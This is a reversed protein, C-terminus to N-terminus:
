FQRAGRQRYARLYSGTGRLRRIEQHQYDEPYHIKTYIDPYTANSGWAGRLVDYAEKDHLSWFTESSSYQDAYFMPKFGLSYAMVEAELGLKRPDFPNKRFSPYSPYPGPGPRGYPGIELLMNERPTGHEDLSLNPQLIKRKELTPRVPNLWIPYIGKEQFYGLLQVANKLLGIYDQIFFQWANGIRDMLDYLEEAAFNNHLRRIWAEDKKGFKKAIYEGMWYAGPRFRESASIIDTVIEADRTKMAQHAFRHFWQDGPNKFTTVSEFSPDDIETGVIVVAENPSFVIAEITDVENSSIVGEMIQIADEAGEAPICKIRCFRSLERLMIEVDLVTAITRYDGNTGYFLEPYNDQDVQLVDGSPM